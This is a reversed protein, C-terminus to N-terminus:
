LCYHLHYYWATVQVYQRHNVKVSARQCAQHHGDGHKQTPNLQQSAPYVPWLGCAIAAPAFLAFVGPQDADGVCPTQLLRKPEKRFGFNASSVIWSVGPGNYQVM